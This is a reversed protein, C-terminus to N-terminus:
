RRGYRADDCNEIMDATVDDDDVCEASPDICAFGNTGCEYAEDVCTCSCCDGRDYGCEENNNANDCDGDALYSINGGCTEAMDVTYDDDNVCPADPDICAFASIGCDYTNDQCTCPCCDGGDYECEARNNNADCEGDRYFDRSCDNSTTSDAEVRTSVITAAILLGLWCPVLTKM